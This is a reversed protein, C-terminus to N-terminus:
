AWVVEVTTGRGPSSSIAFTAGISEARERMSVLGIRDSGEKSGVDFGIGDDIVKLRAVGEDEAMVIDISSAHGHRVSNTVAERVIRVLSERQVPDTTAARTAPDVAFRVAVDLGSFSEATAALDATITSPGDAALSSIARRAEALAREATMSLEHHWEETARVSPPAHMFSTLLALEQAIGDHLDLAVARRSERRAADAMSSWYARIESGAGMAWMLITVARFLDGLQAWSGTSAPLLAYSILSCGAFVCGGGLWALFPDATREAANSLGIFAIFFALAGVVDVISSASEPWPAAARLGGIDVPVRWALLSIAIAGIAVIALAAPRTARRARHAPGGESRTAAVIILFAAAVMRVVLSGWVEIRVAVGDGISAPSVMHPAFQFLPHAWALIAVAAAILLDSTSRTRRYRGWALYAVLSGVLAISTEIVTRAAPAREDLLSAPALTAVLTTAIILGLAWRKQAASSM